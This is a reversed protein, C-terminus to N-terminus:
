GYAMDGIVECFQEVLLNLSFHYPDIAHDAYRALHKDKRNLREFFHNRFAEDTLRDFGNKARVIDSTHFILDPDGFFEEKVQRLHSVRM